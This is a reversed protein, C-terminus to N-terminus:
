YSPPRGSSEDGEEEQAAESQFGSPVALGRSRVERDVIDAVAEALFGKGLLPSLALLNDNYMRQVRAEMEAQAEVGTPSPDTAAVPADGEGSGHASPDLSSDASRPTASGANNVRTWRPKATSPPAFISGVEGRDRSAAPDSGRASRDQAAALGVSGKRPPPRRWTRTRWRAWVGERPGDHPVPAAWVGELPRDDSAYCPEFGTPHIGDGERQEFGTPNGQREGDGQGEGGKKKGAGAPSPEFGAPEGNGACDGQGEAGQGDGAEAPSLKFGTNNDQNEGDGKGTAGGEEGWRREGNGFGM